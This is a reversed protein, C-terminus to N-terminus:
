EAAATATQAATLDAAAKEAEVAALRATEVRAMAKAEALPQLNELGRAFDDGLMKDMDMFLGM